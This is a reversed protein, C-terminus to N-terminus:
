AVRRPVVKSAPWERGTALLKNLAEWLRQELHRYNRIRYHHYECIPLVYFHGLRKGRVIHHVQTPSKQMQAQPYACICCPLFKVIAMFALEEPIAKTMGKYAVM